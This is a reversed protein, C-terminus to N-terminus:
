FHGLLFSSLAAASDEPVTVLSLGFFQGIEWKCVAEM